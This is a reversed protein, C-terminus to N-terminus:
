KFTNKLKNGVDNFFGQLDRFVHQSATEIKLRRDLAHLRPHREYVRLGEDISQRAQTYQRKKIQIEARQAYFSAVQYLGDLAGPNGPSMKNALRFYYLANDHYPEIVKRQSLRTRGLAISENLDRDSTRPASYPTGTRAPVREVTVPTRGAGPDPALLPPKAPQAILSQGTASTNTVKYKWDAGHDLNWYVVFLIAALMAAGAFMLPYKTKAGSRQTAKAAAQRVTAAPAGGRVIEHLQQRMAPMDKFRDERKKALMNDLLPQVASYKEPLVPVPDYAHKYITSLDSNGEYPIKGTLMEYLVIGLSYIDARGDLPTDHAHEPSLYAPTGIIAGTKTLRTLTSNQKAVGFDTLLPTQDDRFLINAPKVDRHVIDKQHAAALADGIKDVIALAQELTFGKAMRSKLDGGTLLEMSIYHHEGDIGVDYITVIHPHNLSAVMKAELLFRKSFDELRPHSLVKLAVPRNLSVQTALYVTAMAGQGLKDIVEYGQIFM